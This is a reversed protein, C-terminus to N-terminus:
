RAALKAMESGALLFSGVCFDSTTTSNFNNAPAAGGPQCWGLRGEKSVAGTPSPATLCAWGAAAVAAYDDHPLVNNNVGWALGFIFLSTGSTEIAPFHTADELSSRWCGDAGQLSKLKAAMSVIKAAYRANAANANADADDDDDIATDTNATRLWYFSPHVKAAGQGSKNQRM